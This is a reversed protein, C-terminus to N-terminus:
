DLIHGAYSFVFLAQSALVRLMESTKEEQEVYDNILLYCKVDRIKQHSSAVFIKGYKKIGTENKMEALDKNKIECHCAEIRVDKDVTKSKLNVFRLCACEAKMLFKAADIITHYIETEKKKSLNTKETLGLAINMLIDMKRNVEGIYSYSEVLDKITQDIKKQDKQKEKKQFVLQREQWASFLFAVAGLLFILLEEARNESLFYFDSRIIDPALVAIIFIILYLWYMM